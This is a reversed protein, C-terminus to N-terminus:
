EVRKVPVLAKREADLRARYLGWAKGDSMAQAAFAGVLGFMLAMDRGRDYVGKMRLYGYFENNEYQMKVFGKGDNWYWKGNCYAAFFDKADVKDGKRGNQKKMYAHTQAAGNGLQYTEVIIGGPEPEANLFSEYSKYLGEQHATHYIPKDKKFDSVRALAQNLTLDPMNYLSAPDTSVFRTIANFLKANMLPRMIRSPRGGVDEHLSDVTGIYKYSAGDGAFGDIRIYFSASPVGNPSDEAFFDYVVLLLEKDTKALGKTLRSIYDQFDIALSNETGLDAKRSNFEKRLYGIYNKEVRADIVKIKEYYVDTRIVKFTDFHYVYETQATASVTIATLFIIFLFCFLTKYAM